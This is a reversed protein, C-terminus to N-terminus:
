SADCSLVQDYSDVGCHSGDDYYRIKRLTRGESAHKGVWKHGFEAEVHGPSCDTM